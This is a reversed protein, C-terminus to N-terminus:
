LSEGKPYKEIHQLKEVIEGIKPLEEWTDLVLRCNLDVLIGDPSQREISIKFNM